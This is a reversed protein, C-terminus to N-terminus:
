MTGQEPVVQQLGNFDPEPGFSVWFPVAQQNLAKNLESNDFPGATVYHTAPATGDASLGTVFVNTNPTVVVAGTDPDTTSNGFLEQAAQQYAAEIILTCYTYNSM